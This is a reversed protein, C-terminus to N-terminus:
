PMIELEIAVEYFKGASRDAYQPASVFRAKVLQETRPHVFDFVMSGSLTDTTFFNDLEQTDQRKLLLKFSVPRINATTRRRVKEPGKDMTSRIINNPPAEQFSGAMPCFRTPWTAM